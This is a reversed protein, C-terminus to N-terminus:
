FIPQYKFTPDEESTTGEEKCPELTNKKTKDKSHTTISRLKREVSIKEEEEIRLRSAIM